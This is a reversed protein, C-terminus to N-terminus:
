RDERKKPRDMTAKLKACERRSHLNGWRLKYGIKVQGAGGIIIQEILWCTNGEKVNYSKGIRNAYPLGLFIVREFTNKSM